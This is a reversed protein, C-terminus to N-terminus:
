RKRSTLTVKADLSGIFYCNYNILNALRELQSVAEYIVNGMAYESSGSKIVGTGFISIAEVKDIIFGHDMYSYVLRHAIEGPPASLNAKHENLLREAYQMASEAVREYYGMQIPKISQSLYKAFMDGAGPYASVLKAIHEVSNKLGLAPMSDIQPDIPGLESMSGMHIEDAACALLTAASKAHRPVAVVFRDNSVERCLKGILYASGLEGGHSVLVMLLPKTKDRFTNIASYIQDSDGKILISNDYLVLINYADAGEVAEVQQHLYKSFTFAFANKGDQTGDKGYGAFLEDILQSWTVANASTAQGASTDVPPMESPTAPQDDPQTSETPM